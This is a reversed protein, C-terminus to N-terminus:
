RWRRRMRGWSRRLEEELEEEKEDNDDVRKMSLALGAFVEEAQTYVAHAKAFDPFVTSLTPLRTM